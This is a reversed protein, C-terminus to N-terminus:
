TPRPAASCSGTAGPSWRPTPIPVASLLAQTYSHKPDEYIAHRDGIEVIKGAYMIAVRHSIHRVV